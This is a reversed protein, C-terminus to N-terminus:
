GRTVSGGYGAKASELDVLVEHDDLVDVAILLEAVGVVYGAVLAVELHQAIRGDM